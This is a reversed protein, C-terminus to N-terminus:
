EHRQNGAGQRCQGKSLRRKSGKPLPLDVGVSIFSIGMFFFSSSASVSAESLTAEM